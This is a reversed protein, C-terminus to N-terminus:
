KALRNIFKCNGYKLLLKGIFVEPVDRIVMNLYTFSEYFMKEMAFKESLLQILQVCDKDM